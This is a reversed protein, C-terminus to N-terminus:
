WPLSLLLFHFFVKCVMRKRRRQILDLLTGVVLIKSTKKRRRWIIRWITMRKLTMLINRMRAKTSAKMKVLTTWGM